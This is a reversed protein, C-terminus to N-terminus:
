LNIKESYIFALWSVKKLLTDEYNVFESLDVDSESKFKKSLLFQQAVQKSNSKVVETAVVAAVQIM